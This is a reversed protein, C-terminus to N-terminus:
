PRIYLPWELVQGAAIDFEAKGAASGDMAHAQIAHRGPWIPVAVEGGDPNRNKGDIEYAQGEIDVIVPDATYNIVVILAKDAPIEVVAGLPTQYRNPGLDIRAILDEVRERDDSNPALQLYRTLSAKAGDYDETLFQTFGLYKYSPAANPELRTVAEFEALAASWNEDDFYSLGQEFRTVASGNGSSVAGSSSAAPAENAPEPQPPAPAEVVAIDQGAFTATTVSAAIWQLGGEAQVQWWSSDANRGVIELSEGQALVGVVGYNTGPGSRLNVNSNSATVM